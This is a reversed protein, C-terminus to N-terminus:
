PPRRGRTSLGPSAEPTGEGLPELCSDPVWGSPGTKAGDCWVWGGLRGSGVVVMGVSVSLEQACYSETVRALQTDFFELVQRPVWGPPQGAATCLFWGSWDEPGDYERGVSVVSGEALVIPEAIEPVHERVVVYRQEAM